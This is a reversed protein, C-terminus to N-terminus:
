PGKGLRIYDIAVNVGPESCPDLRLGTILGRWAPSQGVDLRYEHFEGDGKAAFRISRAESTGGGTTAWFLQADGDKSLKMRIAVTPYEDARAQTAAVSFAPDGTNTTGQLSGDRVAVNTLGMMGSWGEANGDENFEWATQLHSPPLDYPGLGVDAPIVDTHERPANTFVDRIADLYGFGFERHPGIYSGEGWENWAEVFCMKTEPPMDREDLFRKAEECHWKFLDPTLGYRVLAADHHWPRSDWGGSLVPIEKIVSADATKNWVDHYGVLMDRAPAHLKGGSNLGPYNYGSVASYGDHKLQQLGSVSTDATCAVLYIGPLGRDKCVEDMKAFAEKVGDHGLDSVLRGVSFIVVVPKGEITVYEPLKFYNDIWYNTVNICDQVSSSHDPNHNAWLLCFKLYERYKAHFYAEHIGHELQRAGRDWYWDYIFFSIGHEVAWKIQWDCIEPDGERYYGLVPKREPFDYLCRWRSEDPWGPFYYVGVQYDTKVPHPEPVYGTREVEARPTFVVECTAERTPVGPASFSLRATGRTPADAIVKWTATEPAGFILPRVKQTAPGLLRVGRPVSVTATAEGTTEGGMNQFVCVLNTPVGARGIADAPGFGRLEVEVPGMPEAAIRIWAIEARAGKRDTPQLALSIIRGKWGSFGAADINYTHMEGDAKLAFMPGTIGNEADSVFLVRGQEGGTVAMRIAVFSEQSADANLPPSLITPADTTATVVLRGARSAVQAGERAIWGGDGRAFDFSAAVPEGSAGPDLIKIYDVAYEGGKPFDLRLKIIRKEAHWYPHVEYV